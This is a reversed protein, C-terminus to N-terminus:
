TKIRSSSVMTAQRMSIGWMSPCSRSTFRIWGKMLILVLTYITYCDVLTLLLLWSSPIVWERKRQNEWIGPNQSASPPTLTESTRTSVPHVTNTPYLATYRTENPTLMGNKTNQTNVTFTFFLRSGRAAIWLLYSWICSKCCQVLVVLLIYIGSKYVHVCHM